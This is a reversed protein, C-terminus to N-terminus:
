ALFRLSPFPSTPTRTRIPRGRGRILRGGGLLGVRAAGRLRRPRLAQHAVHVAHLEVRQRFFALLEEGAAQREAEVRDALGRCGGELGRCLLRPFPSWTKRAPTAARM